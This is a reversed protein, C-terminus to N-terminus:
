QRTELKGPAAPIGLTNGWCRVEGNDRLACAYGSTTIDIAKVQTLDAPAGISYAQDFVQSGWCSVNRATGYTACFNAGWRSLYLSKVDKLAPGIKYNQETPGKGWCRLDGSESIACTEYRGATVARSPTLDTPVARAPKAEGWCVVAKNAALGCAHTSGVSVSLAPQIAGPIDQPNFARNMPEGWCKVMGSEQVACSVNEMSSLQKVKGLDSPVSLQKFTNDGWCNVTGTSTIGCMHTEGGQVSQYSHDGSPSIASPWCRRVKGNQGFSCLQNTSSGLNRIVNTQTDTGIDSAFSGDITMPFQGVKGWCTVTGQPSIGCIGDHTAVMESLQVDKGTFACYSTAGDKKMLEYGPMGCGVTQIEVVGNAKCQIKRRETGETVTRSEGSAMGGVCTPKFKELASILITDRDPVLNYIRIDALMEVFIKAQEAAVTAVKSQLALTTTVDISKLMEVDNKFRDLLSRENDMAFVQSKLTKLEAVSDGAILEKEDESLSSLTEEHSSINQKLRAIEGALKALRVGKISVIEAPAPGMIEETIANVLSAPPVTTKLSNCLKKAEAMDKRVKLSETLESTKPCTRVTFTDDEFHILTVKEEQMWYASDLKSRNASTKCSSLFLLTSLLLLCRM